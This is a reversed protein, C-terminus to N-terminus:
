PRSKKQLLHYQVNKESLELLKKKDGIKPVTIIVGNAESPSLRRLPM